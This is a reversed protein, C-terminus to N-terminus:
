SYYEELLKSRKYIGTAFKVYYLEINKLHNNLIKEMELFNKVISKLNLGVSKNYIIKLDQEMKKSLKPWSPISNECIWKKKSKLKKDAITLLYMLLSNISDIDSKITEKKTFEFFKSMGSLNLIEHMSFSINIKKKFKDFLLKALTKIMRLSAWRVCFELNYDIVLKEIFKTNNKMIDLIIKKYLDKESLNNSGSFKINKKINLLQLYLKPDNELLEFKILKDRLYFSCLENTIIKDKKGGIFIHSM